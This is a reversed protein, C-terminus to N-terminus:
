SFNRIQSYAGRRRRRLQLDVRNVCAGFSFLNHTGASKEGENDAAGGQQQEARVALGAIVVMETVATAIHMNAVRGTVGTMGAVIRPTGATVGAM